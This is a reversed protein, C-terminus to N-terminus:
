ITSPATMMEYLKLKRVQRYNRQNNTSLSVFSFRLLLGFYFSKAKVHSITPSVLSTIPLLYVLQVVGGGLTLIFWSYFVKKGSLPTVVYIKLRNDLFAFM